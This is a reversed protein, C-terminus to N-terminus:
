GGERKLPISIEPKGHEHVVLQAGGNPMLTLTAEGKDWAFTRGGNPSAASRLVDTYNDRFYFGILTDDAFVIQVGAGREWGGFWTGDWGVRGSQGLVSNSSSVVLCIAVAVILKKMDAGM